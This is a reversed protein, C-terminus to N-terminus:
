GPACRHLASSEALEALRIRGLATMWGRGDGCLMYLFWNPTPESSRQSFKDQLHKYANEKPGYDRKPHGGHWLSCLKSQPPQQELQPKDEWFQSILNTKGTIHQWLWICRHIFQNNLLEAMRKARVEVRDSDILVKCPVFWCDLSAFPGPAWGSARGFSLFSVTQMDKYYCLSVWWKRM